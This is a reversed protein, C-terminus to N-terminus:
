TVLCAYLANDWGMRAYQGNPCCKEFILMSPLTFGAVSVYAHATSHGSAGKSETYAHKSNRCIAVKGAGANM